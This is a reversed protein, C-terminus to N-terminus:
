RARMQCTGAGVQGPRRQFVDGYVNFHKLVRAYRGGGSRYSEVRGPLIRAYDDDFFTDTMGLPGFIEDQRAHADGFDNRRRRTGPLIRVDFAQDARDSSLTKILHDDDVLCM